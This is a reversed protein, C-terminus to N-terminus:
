LVFLTFVHLLFNLGKVGLVATTLDMLFTKKHAEGKEEVLSYMPVGLDFATCLEQFISVPTKGSKNETMNVDVTQTKQDMIVSAVSNIEFDDM